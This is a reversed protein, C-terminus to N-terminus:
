ENKDETIWNLDDQRIMYLLALLSILCCFGLCALIWLLLDM